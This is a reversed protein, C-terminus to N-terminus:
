SKSSADRFDVFRDVDVMLVVLELKMVYFIGVSDLERLTDFTPGINSSRTRWWTTAGRDEPRQSPTRWLAM